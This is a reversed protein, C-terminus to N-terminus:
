ADTPEEIARESRRKAVFWSLGVSLFYLATMPVGM